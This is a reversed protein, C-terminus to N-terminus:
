LLGSLRMQEIVGDVIAAAREEVNGSSSGGDMDIQWVPEGTRVDILTWRASYAGAYGDLSSLSYPVIVLRYAAGFREEGSQEAAIAQEVPLSTFGERGGYTHHEVVLRDNVPAMSTHGFATTISAQGLREVLQRDLAQLTRNGVLDRTIGLFSYM